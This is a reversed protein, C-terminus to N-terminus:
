RKGAHTKNSAVQLTLRIKVPIDEAIIGGENWVGRGIGFESRHIVFLGTIVTKGSPQEASSFRVVLPRETNRINLTGTSEYQNGGLTRTSTNKFTAYPANAKDLWDSNVAIEDAEDNGTTLSGIEIRLETTSKEPTAPDFDVTANFREFEGTVPVGMQIVTFEIRSEAPILALPAAVTSISTSFLCTALLIPYIIKM